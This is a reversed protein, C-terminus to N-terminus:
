ANVLLSDFSLDRVRKCDKCLYKMAQGAAASVQSDTSGFGTSIYGLQFEIYQPHMDVWETYRSIVLTAAYRVQPHDPLRPILDMILPVVEDDAPNVEAGMSRMSFLPAEIEQWSVSGPPRNLAITVMDYAARLCAATGLVYCCDKLTDGM